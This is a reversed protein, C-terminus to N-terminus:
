QLSKEYCDLLYQKYKYFPTRSQGWPGTGYVTLSQYNASQRNHLLSTRKDLGTFTVSVLLSVLESRLIVM